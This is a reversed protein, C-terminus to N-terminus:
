ASLERSARHWGSLLREPVIAKGLRNRLVFAVAVMAVMDRETEKDVPASAFHFRQMFSTDYTGGAFNGEALVRLHLPLNTQVGIVRFEQLARYARNLCKERNDDWVVVKALLSDYRIPIQCGVYGYTDVRVGPGQPLRFRVLRGPSPLYDNWPDEANIRFVMAHGVLHINDQSMALREGAAIRIQQEVIDLDALMESVPHEIQIRAKIETFYFKGAGDILFEVSGVNEFQFLRAIEMATSWLAQRQSASLFPAPSEANLRQNHRLLSGER